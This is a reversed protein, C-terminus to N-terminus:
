CTLAELMAILSQVLPVAPNIICPEDGRLHLWAAPPAEFSPPVTAGRDKFRKRLYRLRDSLKRDGNTSSGRVHLLWEGVRAGYLAREAENMAAWPRVGPSLKSSTLFLGCGLGLVIKRMAREIQKAIVDRVGQFEVWPVIGRMYDRYIEFGPEDLLGEAHCQRVGEPTTCRWGLYELRHMELGDKLVDANIQPALPGPPPAPRLIDLTVGEPTGAVVVERLADYIHIADHSAM